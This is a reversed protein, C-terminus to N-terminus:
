LNIQAVMCIIASILYHLMKAGARIGTEDLCAVFV